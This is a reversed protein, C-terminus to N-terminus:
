LEACLPDLTEPSRSSRPLYLLNLPKFLASASDFLTPVHATPPYSSLTICRPLVSPLQSYSILHSPSSCPSFLPPPHVQWEDAVARSESSLGLTSGGFIGERVSEISAEMRAAPARPRQIPKSPSRPYLGKSAHGAFAETMSEALSLGLMLSGHAPIFPLAPM